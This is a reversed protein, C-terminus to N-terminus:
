GPLILTQELLSQVMGGLGNCGAQANETQPRAAGSLWVVLEELYLHHGYNDTVVL